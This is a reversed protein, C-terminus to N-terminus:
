KIIYMNVVTLGSVERDFSDRIHINKFKSKPARTNRVTANSTTILPM